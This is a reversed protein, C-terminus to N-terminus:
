GPHESMVIRADSYPISATEDDLGIGRDVQYNGYVNLLHGRRLYVGSILQGSLSSRTHTHVAPSGIGRVVMSILYNLGMMNQM